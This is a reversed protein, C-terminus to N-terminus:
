AQAPETARTAQLGSSPMARAATVATVAASADIYLRVVRSAFKWSDVTRAYTDDYWADVHISQGNKFLADCYVSCTGRAETETIEDIIHNSILHFCGALPQLQSDLYVRIADPGKPRGLDASLNTEDFVADETFLTILKDLQKTDVLHAYKATLEIIELRDALEHKATPSMFSVGKAIIASPRTPLGTTQM